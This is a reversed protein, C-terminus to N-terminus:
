RTTLRATASVSKSSEKTETIVFMVGCLRWSGNPNQVSTVLDRLWVASGDAAIMRYEFQHARRLKTEGQCFKVAREKDEPHIHSAWFGPENYWQSVPYGLLREAQKSVFLFQWTEPEAEWVIGGVSNVLESYRRESQTRKLKLRRLKHSQKQRRVHYAHFGWLIALITVTESVYTAVSIATSAARSEATFCDLLCVLHSFILLKWALELTPYRFARVYVLAIGATALVISDFTIGLWDFSEVLPFSYFWVAVCAAIAVGFITDGRRCRLQSLLKTLASSRIGSEGKSIGRGWIRVCM